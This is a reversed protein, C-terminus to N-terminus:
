CWDELENYTFLPSFTHPVEGRNEQSAISSGIIEDAKAWAAQAAGQEKNIWHLDGAARWTLYDTDISIDVPQDETELEDPKRFYELRFVTNTPPTRLFEVRRLQARGSSAPIYSVIAGSIPDKVKLDFSTAIEKEVYDLRVYTLSSNTPDTGGMTMIEGQPQLEMATGSAGADRVLGRIRVEFAESGGAQLQIQTDTSPQSVIPWFGRDRWEFPAGGVSTVYDSTNRTHWQGGPLLARTNTKDTLAVVTGVREPFVLFKTGNAIFDEVERLSSWPLRTGWYVVARSLASLTRNRFGPDIRNALEQSRDILKRVVNDPM